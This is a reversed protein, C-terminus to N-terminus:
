FLVKQNQHCILSLWHCQELKGKQQKKQNLRCIYFICTFYVDLDIINHIFYITTKSSVLSNVMDVEEILQELDPEDDPFFNEPTIKKVKENRKSKSESIM